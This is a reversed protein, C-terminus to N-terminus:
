QLLSQVLQSMSNSAQKLAATGAQLQLQLSTSNSTEKAYDVDMIRGRATDTNTIMNGLNNYVHDLRNSAAGLQANLTGVADLATNLKDIQGNALTGTSLETGAATTPADAPVVFNTSVAVLANSLATVSASTNVTMQEASSAGIQFTLSNNLLGAAGTGPVTGAATGGTFLQQGGFATNTMINGLEQGLADYEQQMASKDSTSTSADAAQTALDKMRQLVNTLETLGGEATQMMSIGNQTNNQAVSMGHSAADLRTAIQLGAADDAATNVRYGTGLRTLSTNLSSQTKSLAQQSSLAAANTHLSLM